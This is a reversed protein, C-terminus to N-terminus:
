SSDRSITMKIFENVWCRTRSAVFKAIPGTRSELVGNYFYYQFFSNKNLFFIVSDSILNVVGSFATRQLSIELLLRFKIKM